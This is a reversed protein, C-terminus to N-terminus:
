FIFIIIGIILSMIMIGIIQPCENEDIVRVNNTFVNLVIDLIKYAVKNSLLLFLLAAIVGLKIKRSYHFDEIKKTEGNQETRVPM